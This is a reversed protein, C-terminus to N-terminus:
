RQLQHGCVHLDGLRVAPPRCLFVLSCIRKFVLMMIAAKVSLCLTIAARLCFKFPTHNSRVFGSLLLLLFSRRRSGTAAVSFAHPAVRPLPRKHPALNRTM